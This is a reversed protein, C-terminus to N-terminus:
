YRGHAYSERIVSLQINIGYLKASHSLDITENDALSNVLKMVHELRHAIKHEKVSEATCSKTSM